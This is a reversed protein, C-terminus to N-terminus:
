FDLINCSTFIFVSFKIYSAFSSWLVTNRGHLLNSVTDCLLSLYIIASWRHISVPILKCNHRSYDFRPSSAAHLLHRVRWGDDDKRTQQHRFSSVQGSGAMFLHRTLTLYSCKSLPPVTFGSKTRSTSETSVNCQDLPTDSPGYALSRTTSRENALISNPSVESWRIRQWWCTTLSSLLNWVMKWYVRELLTTLGTIRRKWQKLRQLLFVIVNPRM